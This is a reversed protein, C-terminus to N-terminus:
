WLSPKMADGDGLNIKRKLLFCTIKETAYISSHLSRFVTRSNISRIRVYAICLADSKVEWTLVVVIVIFLVNQSCFLSKLNPPDALILLTV